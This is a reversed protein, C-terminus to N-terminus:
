KRAAVGLRRALQAAHLDVPQLRNPPIAEFWKGHLDKQSKQNTTLGILNMSDPGFNAPPWQIKQKSKIRWFTGRAACHKGIDEGGGCRWIEGGEGVDLNCFLNEYPAMKHHDLSLNIGKGNKYVNGTNVYSLGIDHIFHTQFDFNQILCDSGTMIGHHGTTGRLAPRESDIVLGDVSCFSSESLFIGSDSNSIRVNKVWCDVVEQLAIGNKGRETFHGKYPSVPFEISLDEIGVESVTPQFSKVVPTWSKRIDFRLPRELTIQKGEVSAIRSVIRTKIPKTVRKTSGTDGTYLHSFLTHQQDDRVEVAVRQGKELDASEGLVLKSSGRECESTVPALDKERLAGKVLIFGGSWSYNSTPRGETTAGMNPRVDELESTFRLVTKGQGAGRLVINPKDIQIVNSLLFLGAPITIAGKETAAIAQIFAETCDTKGDGKAGFRTVDTVAEVKPLPDEGFHYGAFSFDPLRSQPSWKEGDKGWLNSYTQGCSLGPKFLAAAFLLIPFIQPKL